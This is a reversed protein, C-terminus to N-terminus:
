SASVGSVVGVLTSDLLTRNVEFVPRPGRHISIGFSRSKLHGGREDGSVEFYARDHRAQSGSSAKYCNGGYAAHYQIVADAM